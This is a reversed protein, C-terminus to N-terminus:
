MFTLFNEFKLGEHDPKESYLILPPGIAPLPPPPTTPPEQFKLRYFLFNLLVEANISTFLNDLFDVYHEAKEETQRWM